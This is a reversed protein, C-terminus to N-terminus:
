TRESVHLLDLRLLVELTESLDQKKLPTFLTDYVGAEYAKKILTPNDSYQSDCIMVIPVESRRQLNAILEIPNAWSLFSELFVLAPPRVLMTTSLKEPSNLNEIRLDKFLSLLELWLESENIYYITHSGPSARRRRFSSLDIVNGTLRM